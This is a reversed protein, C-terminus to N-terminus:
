GPQDILPGGYWQEVLRRAISLGTPALMTGTEIGTRLDDRSFWRADALEDRDVTIATDTARAFFGLMISSPFPWPQSAVYTVSGVTVGAEEAVERAVAQELSEGPEVFGALTSWRNVAATGSTGLLCRDDADTVLMIVAPDLRPFHEVACSACRRVHGAAAAETAHGCRGCFAHAAHWAELGIAHVMLGADRDSLITGVERLGALRAGGTVVHEPVAVAFFNEDGATGLFYREGAPADAPPVLDLDEGRVAARAGSVVMVRTRPDLWASALWDQDLRRTAARDVGAQALPLTSM